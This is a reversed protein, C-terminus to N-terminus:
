SKTGESGKGKEADLRFPQGAFVQQSSKDNKMTQFHKEFLERSIIIHEEDMSGPGILLALTNTSYLNRSEEKLVGSEEYVTTFTILAPENDLQHAAAYASQMAQATQANILLLPGGFSNCLSQYVEGFPKGGPIHAKKFSAPPPRDMVVLRVDAGSSSGRGSM